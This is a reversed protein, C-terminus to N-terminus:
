FFVAGAFEEVHDDEIRLSILKLIDSIKDNGQFEAM